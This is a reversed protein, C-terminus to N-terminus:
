EFEEFTTKMWQRVEVQLDEVQKETLKLKQAIEDVKNFESKDMAISLNLYPTLKTDYGCLTDVAMETLPLQSLIMYMPRQLITDILSFLGVLFYESTNQEFKLKALCECVKGRYLSSRMLEFYTNKQNNNPLERMALLYVWKRLELLGVMLVAQKISRIKSNKRAASKNILQLLKYSLAIDIEIHEAIRNIDPEDESLLSIIQFYQITNSPIDTSMLVQPQEFFYGQFLTYGSHVAIDFQKRTEVKEALLKIHPYNTKVLKELYMREIAPTLIFDIKIYDIHEFLESYLDMYQPQMIFDDLAIKYGQNSLEEIRTILQPTIAVDELIEIVVKNPDLYDLLKGLILNETFNVFCPKGNAVEEIGITVFTNILVDLTARDSDVMPFSNLEANRYLLEYAVVQEELNLIPQRGLYIEM